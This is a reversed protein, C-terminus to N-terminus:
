HRTVFQRLAYVPQLEDNSDPRMEGTPVVEGRDILTQLAARFEVQRKSLRKPPKHEAM